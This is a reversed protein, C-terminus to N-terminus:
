VRFLIAAFPFDLGGAADAPCSHLLTTREVVCALPLAICLVSESRTEPDRVPVDEALRRKTGPGPRPCVVEAPYMKPGCRLNLFRMKAACGAKIHNARGVADGWVAM